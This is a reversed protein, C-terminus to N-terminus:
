LPTNIKSISMPQDKMINQLINANNFKAPNISGKSHESRFDRSIELNPNSSEVGYKSSPLQHASLNVGSSSYKGEPSREGALSYKKSTFREGGESTEAAV